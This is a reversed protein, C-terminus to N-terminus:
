KSFPNPMHMDPLNISPIVLEKALYNFGSSVADVWDDKRKRGSKTVGDFIELEHMIAEYTEANFTSRVIYVLGHEAAVCFPEFKTLKSANHAAVDRKVTFGGSIFFKVNNVFADKGASGSDEPLVLKVDKGDAKAQDMMVTNRAGSLKRMRGRVKTDKDSFSDIYDGILYFYGQSDKAIKISATFDPDVNPRKESSALDYSRCKLAGMPYKNTEKLWERKFHVGVDDLNKWCGEKLAKRQKEPKANLKAMYTPDNKMLEKNDKLTAPIYTYSIPGAKQAAEEGAEEGFEESIIKRTDEMVERISPFRDILEQRDWSTHLVDDVIAYYATKGSLEKIPYGEEDLYREVFDFVFHNPDPNLTCRIGKTVNAMSRNRTQLTNFQYWTRFQFEEFYIKAIELGYWSDAHKDYELYSFFTKAGSPWTITKNKENLHAKGIPKKGEKDKFLVSHYLKKAELWLGKDIETTTTRFFVSSYDADHIGQLNDILASFTKGGGAGGGFFVVTEEADVFDEQHPQLKVDRVDM